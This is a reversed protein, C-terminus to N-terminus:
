KGESGPTTRYPKGARYLALRAALDKVLEGQRREQAQAIARECTAQAGAYDGTEAQAAALLDLMRPLKDGTAKNVEAAMALAAAGDRLKDDPTTALIWALWFKGLTWNPEARLAAQYEDIARETLGRRLYAQALAHLPDLSQPPMRALAHFERAAEDWHGLEAEASALNNRADRLNPDLALAARYERAAGAYDGQKVLINGLGQRAAALRPNRALAARYRAAAAPLDNMAFLLNAYNNEVEYMSPRLALAREYERRAEANRGAAALAGALSATAPADQPDIEIAKRLLAVAEDYRKLDTLIEGKVTLAKAARPQLRAAENAFELAQAPQGQENLAWALNAYALYRRPNLEIARRLYRIASDYREEHLDTTGIHTLATWSRPSHALTHVFLDRDTRWHDVQLSALGFLLGLGAGLTVLTTRRPFRAVLAAVVLAVGFMSLYMYRDAVTSIEQYAFPVFGLVPAIGAVLMVLGALVKDGPRKWYLAVGVLLPVIWLAYFWWQSLLYDVRWAYDAVLPWPWVLKALYFAVVDLALLPRSWLPAVTSVVEDGQEGKTVVVFVAGLALFPAVALAISKYDRKFVFYDLAACFVPVAVASPKSLLGLSLMALAAAYWAYTPGRTAAQRFSLYWEITLLSFLASLLGRTESIWAVSEVQLPHVAFVLAGGLAAWENAVLRRLLRLVLLCNVTHLAVCGAHYVRPDFPATEATTGLLGGLQGELLFVTYSVPVYLAFYPESWIRKLNALSLANLSPNELIHRRDDWDLFPYAISRGYLALCMAVIVGASIWKAWRPSIAPM